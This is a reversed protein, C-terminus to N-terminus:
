SIEKMLRLFAQSPPGLEIDRPFVIDTQLLIPGEKIKLVVLLGREVEREVEARYLFSIGEGQMVYEKIFEVSGAEVLVSPTVGHSRLLSLIAYRAGSGKERIIIPENHLDQLSIESKDAFRHGPPTVLWFEAKIYPIVKLKKDYPLGGILGLDYKFSLVGEAIEQSNGEGLLVKVKPFLEQFRSILDPMFYRAFTRTTGLKLSGQALETYSMLAYEMEDVIGFIREAYKFLVDGAETLQFDRGCRRILKVGLNHEMSRIQMTIAPQTVCLTEAARTVNKERAALFFARLQNLNTQM